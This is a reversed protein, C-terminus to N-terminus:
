CYTNKLAVIIDERASYILAGSALWPSLMLFTALIDNILSTPKRPSHCHSCEYHESIEEDSTDEDSTDEDSTDEESSEEESSEEESSEEESPEEDSPEEDSPEEDSPEEDSPEEDSQEKLVNADDLVQKIHDVLHVFKDNFFWAEETDKKYEDDYLREVIREGDDYQVLCKVYNRDIVEERDFVSVVTGNCWKSQHEVIYKVCVEVNPAIFDTYSLVM